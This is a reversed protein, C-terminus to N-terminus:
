DSDPRQVTSGPADDTIKLDMQIRGDAYIVPKVTLELAAKVWTVEFLGPYAINQRNNDQGRQTWSRCKPRSITKAQSTNEGLQIMSELETIYNGALFGFQMDLLGETRGAPVNVAFGSDHWKFDWRHRQKSTCFHNWGM